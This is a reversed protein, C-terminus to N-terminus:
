TTTLRKRKKESELKGEGGLIKRKGGFKKKSVTGFVKEEWLGNGEWSKGGGVDEV